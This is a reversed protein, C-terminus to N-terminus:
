PIAVAKPQKSNQKRVNITICDQRYSHFPFFIYIGLVLGSDTTKATHSHTELEVLAFVLQGVSEFTNGVIM